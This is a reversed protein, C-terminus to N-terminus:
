VTSPAPDFAPREGMLLQLATFWVFCVLSFFVFAAVLTAAPDSGAYYVVMGITAAVNLGLVTWRLVNAQTAISAAGGARACVALGSAQCFLTAAFALNYGVVLLLEGPLTPMYELLSLVLALGACRAAWRFWVSRQQMAGCALLVLLWGAADVVVDYGGFRLDFLVLVWGLGARTIPAM